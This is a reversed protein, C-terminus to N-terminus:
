PLASKSVPLAEEEFSCDMFLTIKCVLFHEGTRSCRLTDQGVHETVSHKIDRVRPAWPKEDGQGSNQLFASAEVPQSEGVHTQRAAHINTM